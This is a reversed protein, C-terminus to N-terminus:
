YKFCPLSKSTPFLSSVLLNETTRQQFTAVVVLQNLERSCMFMSDFLVVM